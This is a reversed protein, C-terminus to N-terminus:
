LCKPQKKGFKADILGSIEKYGRSRGELYVYFARNKDSIKSLMEKNEEWFIDFDKAMRGKIQDVSDM